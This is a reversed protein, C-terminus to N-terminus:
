LIGPLIGLTIHQEEYISFPCSVIGQGRNQTMTQYQTLPRTIAEM